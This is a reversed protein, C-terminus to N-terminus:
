DAAQSVSGHGQLLLLSLPAHPRRHCSTLQWDRTCKAPEYDNMRGASVICAIESRQIAEPLSATASSLAAAAEHAGQVLKLATYRMSARHAM